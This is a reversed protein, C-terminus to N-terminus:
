IIIQVCRRRQEFGRESVSLRPHRPTLDPHSTDVPLMWIHIPSTPRIHTAPFHGRGCDRDAAGSTPGATLAPRDLVGFESLPSLTRKHTPVAAEVTCPPIPHRSIPATHPAMRSEAITPRELCWGWPHRWTQPPDFPSVTSTPRGFVLGAFFRSLAGGSLRRPFVFHRRFPVFLGLPWLPAGEYIVM